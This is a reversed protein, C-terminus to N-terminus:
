SGKSIHLLQENDVDGFDMAWIWYDEIGSIVTRAKWQGDWEYVNVIGQKDSNAVIENQGDSDVDIIMVEHINGTLNADIIRREWSGDAMRVIQLGETDTGIILENLGDNDADGIKLSRAKIDNIEAIIKGQICNDFDYMKIKLPIELEVKVKGEQIKQGSENTEKAIGWLAAILENKGDNDLDGTVIEKAHTYNLDDVLVRQYGSGNWKHMVIFGPQPMGKRINPATPNSFFENIGDGDTDSIEVEHVYINEARDVETIDWSDGSKKVVAVVGDKHTGAVLEPWGDTNVDGTEIDRVRIFPPKWVVEGAWTGNVKKYVKLSANQGCAVYLENLGDRDLDGIEGKHAVNSDSIILREIRWNEDPHVIWIQADGAKYLQKGNKDITIEFRSMAMVLENGAEPVMGLVSENRDRPLPMKPEYFYVFFAAVVLVVVFLVTAADIMKM